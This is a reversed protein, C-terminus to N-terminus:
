QPGASASLLHNYNNITQLNQNNLVNTTIVALDSNSSARSLKLLISKMKNLEGQKVFLNFQFFKKAKQIISQPNKGFLLFYLVFVSTPVSIKTKVWIMSNSNKRELLNSFPFM